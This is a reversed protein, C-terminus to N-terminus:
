VPKVKIGYTIVGDHDPHTIRRILARVRMGKEVFLLSDKYSDVLQADISEGTELRVLVVAYPAQDSFGAPPVRIITWTEVTGELGVLNTISKQNRWLKVPSQM